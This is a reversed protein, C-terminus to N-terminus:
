DLFYKIKGGEERKKRKKEKEETIRGRKWRKRGDGGAGLVLNLHRCKPFYPMMAM